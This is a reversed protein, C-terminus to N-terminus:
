ENYSFHKCDSCITRIENMCAKANAATTMFNAGECRSDIEQKIPECAKYYYALYTFDDGYDDSAECTCDRNAQNGHNRWHTKAAATNKAGFAMQLDLYRDLYCQWNCAQM